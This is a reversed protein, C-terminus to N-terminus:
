IKHHDWPVSPPSTISSPSSLFDFTVLFFVFDESCSFGEDFRRSLRLKFTLMNVFQILYKNLVNETTVLLKM